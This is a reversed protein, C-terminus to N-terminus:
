RYRMHGGYFSSSIINAHATNLNVANQIKMLEVHAALNQELVVEMQSRAKAMVCNVHTGFDCEECIYMWLHGPINLWCVDCTYYPSSMSYSLVLQHAHDDRQVAEPLAACKEHLDFECINCNYVSDKGDEGCASCIFEGGTYPPSSLLRLVHKPHSKHNIQQFQSQSPPRRQNRGPPCM